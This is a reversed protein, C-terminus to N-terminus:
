RYVNPFALYIYRDPDSICSKRNYLSYCSAGVNESFLLIKLTCQLSQGFKFVLLLITNLSTNQYRFTHINQFHMGVSQM